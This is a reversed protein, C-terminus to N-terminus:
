FLKCSNMQHTRNCYKRFKHAKSLTEKMVIQGIQAELKTIEDRTTNRTNKNREKENSKVLKNRKDILSDSASTLIQNKRVRIKKFSKSIHANLAEKWKESKELFFVHVSIM